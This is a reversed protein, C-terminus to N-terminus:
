AEIDRIIDWISSGVYYVDDIHEGEEHSDHMEITKLLFNVRIPEQLDEYYLDVVIRTSDKNFVWLNRIIEVKNLQNERTIRNMAEQVKPLREDLTFKFFDKEYIEPLFVTPFLNSDGVRAITFFYNVTEEATTYSQINENSQENSDEKYFSAIDKVIQKESATVDITGPQIDPTQKTFFLVVGLFLLVGVLSLRFWKKPLIHKTFYPFFGNRM